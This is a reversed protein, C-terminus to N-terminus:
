TPRPTHFLRSNSIITPRILAHSVPLFWERFDARGIRAAITRSATDERERQASKPKLPLEHADLEDKGRQEGEMAEVRCSAQLLRSLRWRLYHTRTENEVHVMAGCGLHCSRRDIRRPCSGGLYVM